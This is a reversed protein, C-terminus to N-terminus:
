LHETLVDLAERMAPDAMYGSHGRVVPPARLPDVEGRVPDHLRVDPLGSAPDGTAALAVTSWAPPVAEDDETLGVFCPGGIPDTRRHFNLWRGQAVRSGPGVRACDHFLSAPFYTPFFRRYLTALPSGHTVLWVRERVAPHLTAVVAVSLVSGQSHGSLIAAGRRPPDDDADRGPPSAAAAVEALRRQLEPVARTAYSPPAFPHFTRPWFSAVDWLIGTRTRFGHDRLGRRIVLVAGAVVGLSVWSAAAVIGSWTPPAGVNVWSLVDTGATSWLHRVLAIMSALSVMAATTVATDAARVVLPFREGRALRGTPPPEADPALAAVPAWGLLGGVLVVLTAVFVVTLWEYIATTPLAFVSGDGDLLDVIWIILGSFGGMMISLGLLAVAAPGNWRWRAHDFQAFWTTAAVTFALGVAGHVWEGRGLWATLGLGVAVVGAPVAVLAARVTPAVPARGARNLHGGAQVVSLAVLVATFALLPTLRPWGSGFPAALGDTALALAAAGVLVTAFLVPRWRGSGSAPDGAPPDAGSPADTTRSQVALLVLSPVLLVAVAAVAVDWLVVLVLMAVVLMQDLNVARWQVWRVLQVVSFVGVLAVATALLILPTWGFGWWDTAPVVVGDDGTTLLTADPADLGWTLVVAVVLLAAAAWQVLSTLPRLWATGDGVGLLVDTRMTVVVLATQGVVAVAVATWLVAAGLAEPGAEVGTLREFPEVARGLLGALVALATAVHVRASLRQWGGPFWFAPRGLASGTSASRDARTRDDVRSGYRDYRRRSVRGLLWFLVVLLVAPVLGVVVRRGPHDVFVSRGLFSLYWRDDRCAAIAGCQFALTNVTVLATWTVYMATTAVAILQVVAEHVRTGLDTRPASRGDAPPEVPPEVMWGSLNVLSFPLLLVWLARSRSRATLGGWSYAEVTRGPEAIAGRFFGAKDDGAVQQVGTQELLAEPTTGGVGHVRVETVGGDPPVHRHVAAM